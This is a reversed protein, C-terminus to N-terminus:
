IRDIITVLIYRCNCKVSIGGFLFMEDEVCSGWFLTIMSIIVHKYLALRECLLLIRFATCFESLGTFQMWTSCGSHFFAIVVLFIIM